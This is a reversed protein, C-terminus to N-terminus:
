VPGSLHRVPESPHNFPIPRSITDPEVKSLQDIIKQSRNPVTAIGTLSASTHMFRQEIKSPRSEKISSLYCSETRKVEKSSSFNTTPHFIKGTEAASILERVVIRDKFMESQKKTM